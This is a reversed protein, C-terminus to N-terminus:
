SAVLREVRGGTPRPLLYCFCDALAQARMGHERLLTLGEKGERVPAREFSLSLSMCSLVCLTTSCFFAACVPLLKSLVFPGMQTRPSVRAVVELYLRGRWAVGAGRLEHESAHRLQLRGELIRSVQLSSPVSVNKKHTHFQSNYERQCVSPM